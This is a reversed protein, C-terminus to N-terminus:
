VALFSLRGPFPPLVVRFPQTETRVYLSNFPSLQSCVPIFTLLLALHAHAISSPYCSATWFVHCARYIFIFILLLSLHLLFMSSVKLTPLSPSSTPLPLHAQKWSLPWGRFLQQSHHTALAKQLALPSLLSRTEYALRSQLRPILSNSPQRRWRNSNSGFVNSTLAPLPLFFSPCGWTRTSEVSSVGKNVVALTRYTVSLSHPNHKHPYPTPPLIISVDCCIFPRPCLIADSYNSKIKNKSFITKPSM